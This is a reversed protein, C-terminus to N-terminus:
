PCSEGECTRYDALRSSLAEVDPDNSDDDDALLNDLQFPDGELNYYERFMVRAGREEYGRRYYETYQFSPSLISAWDPIHQRWNDYIEILLEDRTEDSLLSLGDVPFRDHPEIGAADFITPAVDINAVMRNDTAGAEIHGPWRALMPIRVAPIYPVRKAFMRHEGLLFGNDSLFFALTEDREGLKGLLRFLRGVMDDVSMLARLQDRHLARAQSVPFDMDDAFFPKDSRDVEESSPDLSLEPVPADAYIEEPEYPKHPAVPAVYLLWPREDTREFRRLYTAAWRSVYDTSYRDIERLKGNVNFTAGYYGWSSTVWGDFHPPNYDNGLGQLFKGVLATRYGSDRLYAEITSRQDLVPGDQNKEV